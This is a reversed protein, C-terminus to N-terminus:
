GLEGVERNKYMSECSGTVGSGISAARDYSQNEGLMMFILSAWMSTPLRDM